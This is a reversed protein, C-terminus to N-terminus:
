YVLPFVAVASFGPPLDVLPEPVPPRSAELPLRWLRGQGFLFAEEATAYCVVLSTDLVVKLKSKPTVFYWNGSPHAQIYNGTRSDFDGKVDHYGQMVVVGDGLIVEGVEGLPWESWTDNKRNHFLCVSKFQEGVRTWEALRRTYVEWTASRGVIMWKSMQFTKLLCKLGDNRAALDESSQWRDLHQEFVYGGQFLIDGPSSAQVSGDPGRFMAQAVRGKAARRLWAPRRNRVDYWVDFIMDGETNIPRWGKSLSTLELEYLRASMAAYVRQESKVFYHGSWVVRKGRLPQVARVLTNTGGELSCFYVCGTDDMLAFRDTASLDACFYVTMITLCARFFDNKANINM